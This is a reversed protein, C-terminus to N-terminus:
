VFVFINGDGSAAILRDGSPNFALCRINTTTETANDVLNTTIKNAGEQKRKRSEPRYVDCIHINQVAPSPVDFFAEADHAALIGLTKDVATIVDGNFLRSSIRNKVQNRIPDVICYGDQTLLLLDGTALCHMRTIGGSVNSPRVIDQCATAPSMTHCVDWPFMSLWTTKTDQRLMRVDWLMVRRDTSTAVCHDSRYCVDQFKVDDPAALDVVTHHKDTREDFFRFLFTDRYQNVHVASLSPSERIDFGVEAAASGPDNPWGVYSHQRLPGHATGVHSGVLQRLPPLSDQRAARSPPRALWGYLRLTAGIRGPDVPRVGYAQPDAAFEAFAQGTGTDYFALQGSHQTVAFAQGGRLSFLGCRQAASFAVRFEVARFTEVIAPLHKTTDDDQEKSCQQKSMMRFTEPAPRIIDALGDDALALIRGTEGLFICNRYAGQDRRSRGNEHVPRAETSACLRKLVLRRALARRRSPQDRDGGGQGEEVLGHM